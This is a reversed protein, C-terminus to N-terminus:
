KFLDEVEPSAGTLPDAAAALAQHIAELITRITKPLEAITHCESILISAYGHAEGKRAKLVRVALARIEDESAAPEYAGVYTPYDTRGQVEVLFRKVVDLPLEKALLSEVGKEPSAWHQTYAALRATADASLPAAPKDYFGFALKGLATFIPGHRPVDGDGSATFVSVGALDFHTYKDAGLSREM